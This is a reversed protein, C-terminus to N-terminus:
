YGSVKRSYAAKQKRLTSLTNTAKRVNDETHAVWKNVKQQLVEPEGYPKTFRKNYGDNIRNAVNGLNTGVNYRSTSRAKLQNARRQYGALISHQQSSTNGFIAM